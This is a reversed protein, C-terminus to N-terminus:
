AARATAAPNYFRFANRGAQKAEFMAADAHQVLMEDQGHDPFLAIGISATVVHEHGELLMPAALVGLIKEAVLGADQAQTLQALVVAFEDGGLRAVTDGKRLLGSLRRGIEHLLTDGAAHGLTDNVSKFRDLDIYLVAANWKQRRAQNLAQTLRDAFLARNPLDTLVDFQAQRLVKDQAAKRETIDQVMAVFYDPRGQPDRVLAPSIAAWLTTGDKRLYEREVPAASGIEILAANTDELPAGDKSNRLDEFRRGLLDDPLCGALKCLADNVKLFRGDLGVHAVGVAAQDFTARFRAESRLAKDLFERSRLISILALAAFLAVLVSFVAAAALYANRRDTYGALVDEEITGVSVVLGFERLTRYSTYRRVGERTGRSLFNGNDALAQQKLLTSGSVDRSAIKHMGTRRARTAGDLGILQVMGDRGLELKAYFEEFYAPDVGAVVVGGFGGNRLEIRRSMPIVTHGSVRGEVPASVLLGGNDHDRHRVFYDRSSLNAMVRAASTGEIVQGAPDTVSITILLDHRVRGPGALSSPDFKEGQKYQLAVFQLVQNVSRITSLSHEEFALALNANERQAHNVADTFEHHLLAVVAGWALAILALAPLVVAAV